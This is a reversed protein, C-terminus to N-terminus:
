VNDSTRVDTSLQDRGGGEMRDWEMGDKVEVCGMGDWELGDWGMGKGGTGEGGEWRRGEGGM